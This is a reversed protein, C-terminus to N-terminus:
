ARRPLKRRPRAGVAGIARLSNAAEKSLSGFQPLVSADKLLRQLGNVAQEGVLGGMRACIGLAYASFFRIQVSRAELARTLAAIARKSNYGCSALAEAAEARLKTPEKEDNLVDMLAPAARPEFMSGLTHIVARRTESHMPGRVISLLPRITAPLRLSGLSVASCWALKFKDERINKLLAHAVELRRRRQLSRILGLLGLLDAAECREDESRQKDRCIETLKRSDASEMNLAAIRKRLQSELRARLQPSRPFAQKM